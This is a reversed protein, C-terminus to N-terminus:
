KWFIISIWTCRWVSLVDNIIKKNVKGTTKIMTMGHVEVCVTYSVQDFNYHTKIDLAHEFAMGSLAALYGLSKVTRLQGCCHHCIVNIFCNVFECEMKLLALATATLTDRSVVCIFNSNYMTHAGICPAITHGFSCINLGVISSSLAAYVTAFYGGIGHRFLEELLGNDHIACACIPAFVYKIIYDIIDSIVSGYNSAIRAFLPAFMSFTYEM